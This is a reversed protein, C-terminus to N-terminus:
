LNVKQEHCMDMIENYEKLRRNITSVSIDYEIAIDKKNKGKSIEGQIICAGINKLKSKKTCMNIEGIRNIIETLKHKM